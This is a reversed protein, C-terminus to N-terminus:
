PSVSIRPFVPCASCSLSDNPACRSESVDPLRAEKFVRGGVEAAVDALSADFGPRALSLAVALGAPGAAVVLVTGQGDTTGMGPALRFALRRGHLSEPHMAVACGSRQTRFLYHRWYV